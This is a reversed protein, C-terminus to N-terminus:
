AWAPACSESCPLTHAGNLNLSLSVSLLQCIPTDSTGFNRSVLTVRIVHWVSASLNRTQHLKTDKKSISLVLDLNAAKKSLSSSSEENGTRRISSKKGMGRREGQSGVIAFSRPRDSARVTHVLCPSFTL